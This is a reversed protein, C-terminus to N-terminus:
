RNRFWTLQRKAYQRTHLKALAIAEDLACEGRLYAGLEPVGIAKMAPLTSSLNLKLLNAVEELAGQEMMIDFRKSCKDELESLNPLLKIFKFDAEPLAKIMPLKFWEAISKGTDLVIELARRTRSVDNPRVMEAGKADIRALYKYTKELGDQELMAAVKQKIKASTDPIPSEGKILSEIYFGTGGVVIPLKKDDWTQKISLVAEKLWDAVNGKKDPPYIEYLKHPVKQKDQITPAATIIPINQYVQMADANIIVGNYELAYELALGSKGSATPGGIVLVTKDNINLKEIQPM